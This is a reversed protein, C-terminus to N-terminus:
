IEVTSLVFTPQSEYECRVGTPTATDLVILHAIVHATCRERNKVANKIVKLADGSLSVTLPLAGISGLDLVTQGNVVLQMDRLRDVDFREGSDDYFDMRDIRLEVRNVYHLADKIEKITEYDAGSLVEVTQDFTFECGGDVRRTNVTYDKDSATGIITDGCKFEHDGVGNFNATLTGSIPKVGQAKSIRVEVPGCAALLLLTLVPLILKLPSM